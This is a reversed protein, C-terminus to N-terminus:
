EEMQAALKAWADLGGELGLSDALGALADLVQALGIQSALQYVTVWASIAETIEENELYIHGMNFLVRSLGAIDGIEQSIQLSQEL